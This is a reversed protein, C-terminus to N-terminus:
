NCFVQGKVSYLHVVNAEVLQYINVLSTNTIGIFIGRM